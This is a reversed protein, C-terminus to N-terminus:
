RRTVGCTLVGSPDFALALALPSRGREKLDAKVGRRAARRRGRLREGEGQRRVHAFVMSTM